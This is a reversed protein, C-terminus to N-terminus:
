ASTSSSRPLRSAPSRSSSSSHRSGSSAATRSLGTGAWTASRHLHRALFVVAGWAEADADPSATRRSSCRRRAALPRGRRARRGLVDGGRELPRAPRAHAGAVYGARSSSRPRSCSCTGSLRRKTEVRGTRSGRHDRSRRRPSRAASSGRGAPFRRAVAAAYLGTFVPLGALIRVGHLGSTREQGVTYVVPFFVFGALASVALLRRARRGPPCPERGRLPAAGCRAGRAGHAAGCRRPARPGRDRAADRDPTAGWVVMVLSRSSVPAARPASGDAM